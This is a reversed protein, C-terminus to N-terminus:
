SRTGDGAACGELQSVVVTGFARELAGYALRGIINIEVLGEMSERDGGRVPLTRANVGPDRVEPVQRVATSGRKVDRAMRAGNDCTHSNPRAESTPWMEIVRQPDEVLDWIWSGPRADKQVEGIGQTQLALIEPSEGQYLL